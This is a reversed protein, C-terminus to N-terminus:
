LDEYTAKQKAAFSAAAAFNCSGAVLRAYRKTM